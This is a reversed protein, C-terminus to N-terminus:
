ANSDQAIVISLTSQPGAPNDAGPQQGVQVTLNRVAAPTDTNQTLTVLHIGDQEQNHTQNTISTIETESETIQYKGDHDKIRLEIQTTDFGISIDSSPPSNYAKYVNWTSNGYIRWDVAVRSANTIDLAWRPSGSFDLEAFADNAGISSAYSFTRTTGVTTTDILDLNADPFGATLAATIDGAGWEYDNDATFAFSGTYYDGDTGSFSATNATQSFSAPSPNTETIVLTANSVTNTYHIEETYTAEATGTITVDVTTTTGGATDPFSGTISLYFGVGQIYDSLTYTYTADTGDDLDVNTITFQEGAQYSITIPGVLGQNGGANVDDQTYNRQQSSISLGAASGNITSDPEVDTLLITRLQASPTPTISPTNSPTNPPTSSPTPTLSSGPTTSLSPTISPTISPPPTNSPSPSPTSTPSPTPSPPTYEGWVVLCDADADVFNYKYRVNGVRDYKYTNEDNLEGSSLQIFSGSFEGDYKAEEHNHYNYTALGGSTMRTDTYSASYQDRSGFSSGHSSEISSVDISTSFENHFEVETGVQKLKSRELLHPKIIIGASNNTRAPIFDRITKFLVNDYFKLLRTFDKLNYRSGTTPSLYEAAKQQLEIYSSSQALRPDGLISDIDFGEISASAIIYENLYSSPSFGLETINLDTTYKSDKKEISVYQSLTTDQISGTNDIRIKDISSTTYQYEGFNYSGSLTGGLQILNIGNHTSDTSSNPIGFTNLLARLGRETGKSKLLFPLNHYIRKYIQKRYDEESTITNSGSIIETVYSESGTQYSEGSFMQFLEQTSKNSNYLKVGFNKLADEILDKSLGFDLRNDGNYKESLGKTYIWLNDFHQGIMHLFTTYKGNNPDDKIYEPVTNLLQNPNSSDYLSASNLQLNIWSGTASGTALTYPISDNTKPWSYSSSDYYLFRDYHDFNSLINNVKEDYYSKSGTIGIETYDSNLLSDREEQYQLILNLKYQFNRIREEASSFNIFNSFSSYDISLEAGKEEFISKVQYYSNTVPYSFVDDINFYESPQATSVESQINFNPGKLYPVKIEDPVQEAEALFTISDAVSYNLSVKDKVVIDEPLENYLKVVVSTKDRYELTNVNIGLLLRNNGFNVLFESIFNDQLYKRLTEVGINISDNSQETSLLRIETRDPSIEEIFFESKASTETFTDSLFNYHLYVDGFEFGSIKLDNETGLFLSNLTGQNGTEADQPATTNTYFPISKLLRGDLSYYHLEIFDTVENFASNIQFDAILEDDRESLTDRILFTTSDVPTFKYNYRAM